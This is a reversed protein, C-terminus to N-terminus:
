ALLNLEELRIAMAGNSVHFQDALSMFHRGNYREAKALLISLDRRTHCKARIESVSEGSLAFATDDNLEFFDTGFLGTFRNKVLKEPMLFYTAFKDAEVEDIGRSLTAGDLPRDRHISGGNPHLVAHGLEHAATFMRVHMPFQRSLRVIKSTRDILGAVEIHGGSVRHKGLSEELSHEFGILRLAIAPDLFDIPDTPPVGDWISEKEKWLRAHLDKALAEIHQDIRRRSAKSKTTTSDSSLISVNQATRRMSTDQPVGNLIASYGGSDNLYAYPDQLLKRSEQIQIGIIPSAQKAAAESEFAELYEIHAYPNALLRRHETVRSKLSKAM